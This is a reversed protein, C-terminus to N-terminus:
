FDDDIEQKSVRVSKPLLTLKEDLRANQVTLTSDDADFLRVGVLAAVEFVTGIEPGPAGKEINHLTTRSINARDALDQATMGRTTRGVRILKGFVSLAQKTVRSYSRKRKM